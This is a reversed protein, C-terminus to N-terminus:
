GKLKETNIWKVLLSEKDVAVHWLHKIIMAKNWIGLDKWVERKSSLPVGLYKVLLKKVKFPVGELISLKEIEKTSKFITTSKAYNPLLGFVACFQDIAEKMVNVLKQDGHYFMILEDVFCVHTLKLRKCGFHYCFDRDKRDYGKLSDQSLLINHQIHINPIFASQNQGVLKGLSTKMRETIIKNICKYLVNCCAIPRFNTVKGQTQIKPVLSILTSNIEKLMKGTNFFERVLKWVVMGMITWAQKLSYPLSAMLVMHRIGMIRGYIKLDNWLDKRKIGRNAAYVFTCFIKTDEDITEMSLLDGDDAMNNNVAEKRLESKDNNSSCLTLERRKRGEAVAYTKNGNADHKKQEQEDMDKGKENTGKVSSPQSFTDHEMSESIISRKIRTSEELVMSADGKHAIVENVQDMVDNNCYDSNVKTSEDEEKAKKSGSVAKGIRNAGVINSDFVYDRFKSLLKTKRKPRKM